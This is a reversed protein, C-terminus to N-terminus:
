MWRGVMQWLKVWGERRLLKRARLVYHTLRPNGGTMFPAKRRGADPALRPNTCFRALPEIVRSWQYNDRAADMNRAIEVGLVPDDLLRLIQEALVDVSLPPVTLGLGNREVLDAMVDGTTTLIPLRTWLYDLMRTRFSFRTELHEVYTSVGIDAELLYNQREEYDVWDNFFVNRDLLGLRRALEEAKLTMGTVMNSAPHRTGMFFLKIEPRRKAVRAVAEILTLPDFWDWIGGAWLLVKDNEGIGPYVGKLVRRTQSPEEDPLGFPVVDILRRLSEDNAYTLPNVRNLSALMGLWYDRQKESACIFFDGVQLQQVLLGLDSDHLALREGLPVAKRSELNELIFPDYIDVVLPVGSDALFPYHLLALGQIVVAQVQPLMQQLTTAATQVCQFGAEPPATYDNPTALTVQFGRAALTRAFNWYRIGPGAMRPGVIDPSLLLVHNM